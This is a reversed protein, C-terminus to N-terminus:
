VSSSLSQIEEPFLKQIMWPTGNIEKDLQQKLIDQRDTGGFHDMILHSEPSLIVPHDEDPIETEEDSSSVLVPDALSGTPSM